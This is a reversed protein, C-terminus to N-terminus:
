SCGAVCQPPSIVRGESDITRFTSAVIDLNHLKLFKLEDVLRTAYSIDDADMRAIYDGTAIQVGLNLSAVLGLNVDNVYLKMRPDDLSSLYLINEDADPNDVIVILEIDHFTQNLISCVSSELDSLSENYTTLVVSIM